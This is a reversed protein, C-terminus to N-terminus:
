KSFMEGQGPKQATVVLRWEKFPKGPRPQGVVKGVKALEPLRTGLGNESVGILQFEHIALAAPYVENLRTLIRQKVTPPTDSM